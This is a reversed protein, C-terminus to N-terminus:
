GVTEAVFCKLAMTEVKKLSLTVVSVQLLQNLGTLCCRMLEGEVEVSASLRFSLASLTAM